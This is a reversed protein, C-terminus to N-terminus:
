QPGGTQGHVGPHTHTSGVNVGNHTLQGGVINFNGSITSTGGSGGGGVSIGGDVSINGSFNAQPSEVSFHATKLTTGGTTLTLLTEGVKLQISSAIDFVLTGGDISHEWYDSASFDHREVNRGDANQPMDECVLGPLVLAQALDGGPALLVCEENIAPARWHRVQNSGGAALALWPLWDTLLEGTRVRCRPPKTTVEEVRGTRVINNMLRLQETPSQDPMDLSMGTM